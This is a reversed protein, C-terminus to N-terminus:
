TDAVRPTDGALSGLARALINEGTADEGTAGAFDKGNTLALIEGSDSHRDHRCCRADVKVSLLSCSPLQTTLM